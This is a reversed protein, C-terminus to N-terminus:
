VVRLHKQASLADAIRAAVQANHKLLALNADVSTHGTLEAVRQLLFPTMAFGRVAKARAEELAQAVAQEVHGRPLPQPPPVVVLIASKLGLDWHSRAIRAVEEADKARYPVRLGSEASYFAPFEDTQYGVVPVGLTELYELTAPLDLIAKAGACVVVTPTRSLQPLDASVDYPPWRHVGGIGGTAFVRIGTLGCAVLTGSVTTGGTQRQALAPGFDRVSIKRPNEHYALAHLQASSLGVVVQGEIVGVTSPLAGHSKVTAEMDRALSLNDPRPLGHTIVASELAVVPAGRRLAQRVEAAVRVTQPLSANDM